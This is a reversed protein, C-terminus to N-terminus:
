INLIPAPEFAHINGSFAPLASAYLTFYGWNAGIDFFVRQDKLLASLLASVDPEYGAPDANFYLNGFHPKRADFKAQIVGTSTTMCLTGQGGLNLANRAFDYALRAPRKGFRKTWRKKFRHHAAKGLKGILPLDEVYFPHAPDTPAILIESTM